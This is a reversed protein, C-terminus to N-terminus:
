GKRAHCVSLFGVNLCEDEGLRALLYQKSSGRFVIVEFARRLSAAYAAAFRKAIYLRTIESVPVAHPDQALTEIADGAAVEGERSVAFYFGTRSSALFRKVM